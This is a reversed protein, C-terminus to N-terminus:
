KLQFLTVQKNLVPLIGLTTLAKIYENAIIRRATNNEHIHDGMDYITALNGNGDNLLATHASVRADANTITTLIATNMDLWKQYSVLGNVAGYVDICREKCPTMTGVVVLANTSYYNITDILHQYRSMTISVNEAPNLDNLGIEVLVWGYLAKNASNLYVAQQQVITHGAVALEDIKIGAATDLVNIVYSPVSNQGLYAAITSNSIFAGLSPIRQSFLLSPILCVLILLYKKMM